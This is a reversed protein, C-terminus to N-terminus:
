IVDIYKREITRIAALMDPFLIPKWLMCGGVRRIFQDIKPDGRHGTMFIFRKCLAPRAKEVALYFMDGPLTPMLMDCLILDFDGGMILKIGQAGNQVATVDYGKEWLFDKVIEAFEVEDELILVKRREQVVEMGGGLDHTRHGSADQWKRKQM